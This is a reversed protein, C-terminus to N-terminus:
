IQEALQKKCRVYEDKAKSFKEAALFDRDYDSWANNYSDEVLEALAIMQEASLEGSDIQEWQAASLLTDAVSNDGWEQALVNFEAALNLTATGYDLRAVAQNRETTVSHAYFSVSTLTAALFIAVGIITSKNM